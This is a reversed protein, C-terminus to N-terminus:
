RVAKNSKASGKVLNNIEANTESLGEEALEETYLSLFYHTCRLFWATHIATVVHVYVPKRHSFQLAIQLSMQSVWWEMVIYM